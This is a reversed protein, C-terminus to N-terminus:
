MEDASPGYMGPVPVGLLRLYVTLQARHHVTHNFCMSRLCQGRPMALITQEGNKLSWTVALDEDTAALFAQKGREVNEDFVALLAQTNSFVPMQYGGAMDLETTNLTMPTWNALDAVHVALRQLSMSKEHPTWDAKDAPIRELVKRTNAAEHTYEGLMIDVIRM